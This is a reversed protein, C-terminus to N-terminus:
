GYRAQRKLAAKATRIEQVLPLHSPCVYACAGCEFCSFLNQAEAREFEARRALLGLEAPNLLMPCAEVCRACLICPYVRAPQAEENLVIIGSTGKTVAVELSAAAQGMMPGGFLLVGVQETVGVTDLVFELPTGIAIRYNGPEKVGPGAITIVREQIGRGHPLLRGIEATTAVNICVAGVDSPLGGTPVRRGLLSEILMKEAGQPYKVDLAVLQLDLDDTSLKEFAALVDRNHKEVALVVHQVGTAAQLYRIGRVVDGTQECMVRYDTTLYPECEVGNIILTDVDGEVPARLKIHTPFAAGGLGVIGADRVADLIEQPTATALDCPTGEIVEQTSAPFPELYVGPVRAGNISPVTALQQVRGSAPAHVPASLDGDARALLQGRAVEQGERVVPIAANGAHQLLPIALLPAFPFQRIALDRTDKEPPPHVGHAFSHRGFM